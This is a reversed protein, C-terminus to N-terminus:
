CIFYDRRRTRWAADDDPLHSRRASSLVAHVARKAVRCEDDYWPTLRGDASESWALRRWDILSPVFSPTTSTSWNMLTCSEEQPLEGRDDLVHRKYLVVCPM